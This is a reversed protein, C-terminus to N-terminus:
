SRVFPVNHVFSRWGSNDHLMHPLYWFSAYSMLALTFFIFSTIRMKKWKVSPTLVRKPYVLEDKALIAMFIEVIFIYTWRGWDNAIIYVPILIFASLFLGVLIPRSNFINQLERLLPIFALFCLAVLIPYYIFYHGYIISHFTAKLSSETSWGLADIGGGKLPPVGEHRLSNVIATIQNNSAQHHLIVGLFIMLNLFLLAINLSFVKNFSTFNPRVKDWYLGFLFPIVILGLEDTLIVFPYLLLVVAFIREFKKKDYISYSYTVYSLVAFYIIEKRYGGAQSNIAYTFLFPSFILFIYKVLDFKEKLLKWSFYFFSAFIVGQLFVLYILPTVGTLYSFLYLCEGFFGRRVFGGEYNILWEGINYGEHVRVQNWAGIFIFIWIGFFYYPLFRRLFTDVDERRVEGDKFVNRM